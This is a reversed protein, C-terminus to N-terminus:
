NSTPPKVSDIVVVDVPARESELKLGLQDQIATTLPPIDSQQLANSNPISLGLLGPDPLFDMEIDYTGTLNTRDVIKRSTMPELVGAFRAVPIGTLRLRAFGNILAVFWACPPPGDGQRPRVNGADIIPACDRESSKMKEGLQGDRRATVLAYKDMERTERHVQLGYREALLRQVMLRMQAQSVATEAKASVEYRDSRLWAPGGIIQFARAEYAYEILGSVTVNPRVFRDPSNPINGPPADPTRPKISIVEFAPLESSTQGEARSAVLVLVLAAFVRAMMMLPVGGVLNSVLAASEPWAGVRSV